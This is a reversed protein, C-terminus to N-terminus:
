PCTPPCNPHLGSPGPPKGLYSKLRNFDNINVAGNGDLDTDVDVVPVINLRAKLRNFDNINVVGDNNFDPDCLNGYGDIDTDRQDTNAVLTCNDLTDAIGDGDTDALVTITVTAQATATGDSISYQFADPGVYNAVPTYTISIGSQTGPSGNVQATGHSGGTVIGVTAPNKFGFDNLLVSIQVPVNAATSAADPNAVPALTTGLNSVNAVVFSRIKSVDTFFAGLGTGSCYDGDVADTIGVLVGTIVM